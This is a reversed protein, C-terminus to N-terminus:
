CDRVTNNSMHKIGSDYNVSLKLSEIDNGYSNCAPGALSLDATLGSSTTQVNSASYGPCVTGNVLQPRLAMGSVAAALAAGTFLQGLMIKWSKHPKEPKSHEPGASGNTSM